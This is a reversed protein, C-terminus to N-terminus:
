GIKVIQATTEEDRLKSLDYGPLALELFRTEDATAKLEGGLFRFSGSLLSLKTVNTDSPLEDFIASEFFQLKM